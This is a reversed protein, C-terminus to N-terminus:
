GQIACKVFCGVFNAQLMTMILPLDKSVGSTGVWKLNAAYLANARKDNGNEKTIKALLALPECEKQSVMLASEIPIVHKSASNACARFDMLAHEIRISTLLLDETPAHPVISKLYLPIWLLPSEKSDRGPYNGSRRSEVINIRMIGYELDVAAHCVGADLEKLLTERM